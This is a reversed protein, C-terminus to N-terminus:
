LGKILSKWDSLFTGAGKQKLALEVADRIHTKKSEDLADMIRLIRRVYRDRGEKPLPQLDMPMLAAVDQIKPFAESNQLIERLMASSVSHRRSVRRKAGPTVAKPDKTLDITISKVQAKTKISLSEHMQILADIAARLGAEDSPRTLTARIERLEEDSFQAALEYLRAVLSLHKQRYSSSNM